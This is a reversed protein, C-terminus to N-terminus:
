YVVDTVKETVFLNLLHILIKNCNILAPILSVSKKGNKKAIFTDIINQKTM